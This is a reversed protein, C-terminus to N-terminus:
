ALAGEIVNKKGQIIEAGPAGSSVLVGMRSSGYKWMGRRWTPEGMGKM